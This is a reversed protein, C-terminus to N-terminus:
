RIVWAAGPGKKVFAVTSEDYCYTGDDALVVRFFGACRNPMPNGCLTMGETEGLAEAPAM